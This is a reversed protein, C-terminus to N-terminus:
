FKFDKLDFLSELVKKRDVIYCWASEDKLGCTIIIDGKYSCMSRCFEIGHSEFYWPDSLKEVKFDLSLSVWRHTYIRSRDQDWSVEHVILLWMYNDGVELLLPGASGRFRSFDISTDNSLLLRTDLYGLGKCIDVLTDTPARIQTPSYSYVFKIEGQHSFPLWNKEPRGDILLRIPRKIYIEYKPSEEFKGFSRDLKCLSIQPIGKNNTDLTTCTCWLEGEHMFIIVDELGKIPRINYTDCVSKDLIETQSKINLDRDLELIYNKTNVIGDSTKAYYIGGPKVGFNSTRCNMIFGSRTNIISPNLENYHEDCKIEIRKRSKFELTKMYFRQNSALMQKNVLINCDYDFLLKDSIRLGEKRMDIYFSFITFEELFKFVFYRMQPHVKEVTFNAGVDLDLIDFASVFRCWAEKSKGDSRYKQCKTLLIDLSPKHEM